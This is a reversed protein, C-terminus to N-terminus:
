TLVSNVFENEQKIKNEIEKKQNELKKDEKEKILTFYDHLNTPCCQTCRYKYKKHICFYKLNCLKCNKILKEHECYVPYECKKCQLYNVNHLCKKNRSCILCRYKNKRHTCYNEQNCTHCTYLKKQHICKLYKGDWIVLHFHYLYYHNVIRIEIKPLPLIYEQDLM